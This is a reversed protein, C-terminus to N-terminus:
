DAHRLLARMAAYREREIARLARRTHARAFPPVQTARCITRRMIALDFFTKAAVRVPVLVRECLCPMARARQKQARMLAAARRREARLMARADPQDFPMDFLPAARLM